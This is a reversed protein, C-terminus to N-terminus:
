DSESNSDCGLQLKLGYQTSMQKCEMKWLCTQKESCFNESRFNFCPEDNIFRQIAHILAEATSITEPSEIGVSKALRQLGAYTMGGDEEAIALYRKVQMNVYQKEALLWDEIDFGAVFHRSEARYYAAESIWHHRFADDSDRGDSRRDM